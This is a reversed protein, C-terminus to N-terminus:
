VVSKRDTTAALNAQIIAERLSGAGSDNTNIVTYTIGAVTSVAFRAASFESTNNNTDTATATLYRGTLNTVSLQATFTANGTGDTTVNTTGLYVQGEGNGSGDVAVNSYFDLIFAANTASNLTGIVTTGIPTNTSATLIPFNQQLNALADGDGLDNPTVGDTALDIGLGTNSYISNGRLVNNSGTAVFIGDAGNFAILNAEGVGVGGITNTRATTTFQIGHGSNGLANTGTLDPGILNGRVFGFATTLGTLEIGDGNNGSILNGEGATAGGIVANLSTTVTIGDTTNGRDLTGTADTGIYNGQITSNNATSVSIGIGTNGAIVNRGASTANGVFNSPANILTIGNVANARNTGGSIELGIYNGLIQNGFAQALEIRIGAQTNGSIVNRAATVTGGIINSRSNSVHIGNQSNPVTNSGNAGLGILNGLVQNGFSNSGGILVGQQNNGSIVNRQSTNTGGIINLTSNTIFVGCLTNGLDNTGSLGTGIYCGEIINNGNTAIEIGDGTFRNIVLGRITTSGAWIKFGDQGAGGINTGNVEIIPASVWGPQTTADITVPDTIPPLNTALPITVGSAINFDITDAGGGANADLLAQRLSGAGSDNTVTVTYTAAFNQHPLLALCALTLVASLRHFYNRM